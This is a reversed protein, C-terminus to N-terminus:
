LRILAERTASKIGWNSGEIIQDLLIGYEWTDPLITHLLCCEHQNSECCTRPSNSHDRQANVVEEIKEWIESINPRNEASDSVCKLAINLLPFAWQTAAKSVEKDFVEGTWEERVMARVWKPLDIGSKEVTKSTLLELLIVGFSFVDGQETLSKEPATYGNSTLICAKVPDRAIGSAISLRLEWPFDRKGEIYDELLNLLSGHSQYKYIFLKEENTSHYAVLPLMNPHKLSGIQRMTRSFEEFSVQLQKLRKVAYLASNKLIVKYLSSCLTQSKLDATAELLEELEFREHEEVLFVLESHREVPKVEERAKAPPTKLPSDQLNKLIEREKASNKVKQGVIYIFLLFLGVGLVLPILIDWGAYSHENGANSENSEQGAYSKCSQPSESLTHISHVEEVWDVTSIRQVASSKSYYTYLPKLDHMFHPM